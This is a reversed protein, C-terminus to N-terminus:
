ASVSSIRVRLMIKDLGLTRAIRMLVIVSPMAQGCELRSLYTRHIGTLSALGAQTMGYRSRLQRMIRGTETRVTSEPQFDLSDNSLHLEIIAFGL